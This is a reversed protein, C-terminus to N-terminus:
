LFIYYTNLIFILHIMKHHVLKRSIIFTWTFILQFIFINKIKKLDPIVCNLWSTGSVWSLWNIMKRKGSTKWHLNVFTVKFTFTFIIILRWSKWVKFLNYFKWNSLITLKAATNLAPRKIGGKSSGSWSCENLAEDTFIALLLNRALLTQNTSKANISNLVLQNIYINSGKIM